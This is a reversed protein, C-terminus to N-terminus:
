KQVKEIAEWYKEIDKFDKKNIQSYEEMRKRIAEKYVSKHKSLEKVYESLVWEM